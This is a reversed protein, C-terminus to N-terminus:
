GGGVRVGTSRRGKKGEGSWWVPVGSYRWDEPRGGVKRSFGRPNNKVGIGVARGLKWGFPSDRNLSPTGMNGKPTGSATDTTM